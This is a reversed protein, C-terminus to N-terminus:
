TDPILTRVTLVIAPHPLLSFWVEDRALSPDVRRDWSCPLPSYIGRRKARIVASM